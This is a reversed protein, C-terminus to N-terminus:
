DRPPDTVIGKGSEFKLLRLTEHPNYFHLDPVTCYITFTDSDTSLVCYYDTNHLLCTIENKIYGTQFLIGNEQAPYHQSPDPFHGHDSQYMNLANAIAKLNSICSPLPPRRHTGTTLYPFFLCVYIFLLTLYLISNSLKVREERDDCKFAIKIIISLLFSLLQVGIIIYSLIILNWFLTLLLIFALPIALYSLSSFLKCFSRKSEKM